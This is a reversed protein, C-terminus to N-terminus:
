TYVGFFYMTVVVVLIIGLIAAASPGKDHGLAALGQERPDAHLLAPLEHVQDVIGEYRFRGDTQREYLHAHEGARPADEDEDELWAPPVDHALPTVVVSAADHDVLRREGDAPGGGFFVAEAAQTRRRM